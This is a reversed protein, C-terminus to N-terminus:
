RINWKINCGRYTVKSLDKDPIMDLNIVVGNLSTFNFGAIKKVM